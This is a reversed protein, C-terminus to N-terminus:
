TDGFKKLKLPWNNGGALSDGIAPDCISALTIMHM